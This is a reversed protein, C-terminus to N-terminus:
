AKDVKVHWPEFRVGLLNDKPYRLTIYGRKSLEKFIKTEMFETSFNRLGFNRQGVDFDGVGHFSYGPPALSRSALSLNYNNSKVKALFLHFQKVIGRVGSTLVVDPGLLMQIEKWTKEAPGKYIYNGMRPIKTVNKRKIQTTFDPLPKADQFGYLKADTHFLSELYLLEKRAFSGVPSKNAHRRAEDISTLYFFGHGIYAQLHSLRKYVSDLLAQQSPDVIVDDPFSQDYHRMKFLYDRVASDYESFDTIDIDENSLSSLPVLDPELSNAPVLETRIPKGVPRALLDLPALKAWLATTCLATLFQRKNM